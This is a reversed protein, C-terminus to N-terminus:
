RCRLFDSVCQELGKEGKRSEADRGKRLVAEVMEYPPEDEARVEEMCRLVDVLEREGAGTRAKTIGEARFQVKAQLVEARRRSEPWRRHEDLEKWPLAGWLFDLFVYLLMIVDDSRGQSDCRHRAVSAWYSRGKFSKPCNPILTDGQFVYASQGFDVAFVHLADAAATDFALAFNSPKVDRHLVGGQHLARLARFMLLFGEWMAVRTLHGGKRLESFDCQLLTMIICVPQQGVVRGDPGTYNVAKDNEKPRHYLRCVADTAQLIHLKKADALLM